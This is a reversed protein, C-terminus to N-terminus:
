TARHHAIRRRIRDLIEANTEKANLGELIDEDVTDEAILSIILLSDNSSLDVTREQVQQWTLLSQPMSFFVVTDVGTLNTGWKWCQPQAVLHQKNKLFDDKIEQRRYQNVAGHVFCCGLLAAVREVEEVYDAWIIVKEHHLEGQLLSLLEAEKEKGSCLRRTIDRRQGAFKLIRDEYLASEAELYKKWTAKNLQVMRKEFIKEKNLNVDKRTLVSCRTAIARALVQRGKLTIKWDNGEPRFCRIRFDWFSRFPLIEDVWQLQTYYQLENEPAPTGTLLIRYKATTHNLFYKTVKAQPNALWTEDEVIADWQFSLIDCYLFSEKNILFWGSHISFMELTDFRNKPPTKYIDIIKQKERSLDSEWGALCSYPGVVLIRKADARQSLFRITTITKGLRMEWILAGRGNNRRLYEVGNKIQYSRLSLARVSSGVLTTGSEIRDASPVALSPKHLLM